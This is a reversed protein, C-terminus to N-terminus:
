KVMRRTQRERGAKMEWVSLALALRDLETENSDAKM